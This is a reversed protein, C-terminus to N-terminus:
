KEAPIGYGAVIVTVNDLGGRELALDVLARCAEAATAHRNLEGEIAADPVMDTLGDTCLLVRDGDELLTRKIEPKEGTDRGLVHTLVHRLRHTAIEQPSIAGMDALAQAMTHDRTLRRLSGQRCLYARSDGLYAVFLEAGFSCAMTLTTGMGALQPESRAQEIVARNVERFRRATRHLIEEMHPDDMGFIWDPTNLILNLLTAIATRSAVEGAATGGMGDAVVMGYVTDGFERPVLGEELNTTLTELFRGARLALYRDENNSRVKGQHSLAAVDVRVRSSFPAPAAAGRLPSLYLDTDKLRNEDTAPKM